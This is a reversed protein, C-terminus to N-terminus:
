PEDLEDLADGAQPDAENPEGLTVGKFRRCQTLGSSTGLTFRM